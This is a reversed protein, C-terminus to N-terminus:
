ERATVRYGATAVARDVAEPAVEGSQFLIRASGVSVERVTIGPIKELEKRVAMVCHGCSMGGILITEEKM